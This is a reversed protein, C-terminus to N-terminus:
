CIYSGERRRDEGETYKQREFLYHINLNCLCNRVFLEAYPKQVTILMTDMYLKRFYQFFIAANFTLCSKFLSERVELNTASM